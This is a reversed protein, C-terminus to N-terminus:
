DVAGEVVLRAVMQPHLTCYYLYEGPEDFTISESENKRFTGTDWDGGDKATATHPVSDYNVWTVTAGVPVQLNGPEYVYDRIDVTEAAGGVVLADGSVNRGGDHMRDMHDGMSWGCSAMGVSVVMILLIALAFTGPLLVGAVLRRNVLVPYLNAWVPSLHWESTPAAASPGPPRMCARNAIM